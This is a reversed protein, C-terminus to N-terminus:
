SIMFFIAIIIIILVLVLVGKITKSSFENDTTDTKEITVLAENETDSELLDSKAMKKLVRLTAKCDGLATHDGGSLKQYKYDNHYDNWEGVFKSYEKMVCWCSLTFEECNNAYCTQRLLRADFEANYMLITKDKIIDIFKFVETEFFPAEALDKKTLGHILTSDRSISKKAKPKILTNYLVNEDLDIIAMQIIEDDDDLGSTETDLILYKDKNQLVDRAWLISDNRDRLSPKKM